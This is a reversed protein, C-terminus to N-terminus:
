GLWDQEDQATKLGSWFKEVVVGIVGGVFYWQVTGVIFTLVIALGVMGGPNRCYVILLGPKGASADILGANSKPLLTVNINFSTLTSISAASLISSIRPFSESAAYKDLKSNFNGTGVGVFGVGGFIAYKAVLVAPLVCAM